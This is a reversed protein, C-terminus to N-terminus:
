AALRNFWQPEAMQLSESAGPSVPITGWAAGAEWWIGGSPPRGKCACSIRRARENKHSPEKNDDKKRTGM